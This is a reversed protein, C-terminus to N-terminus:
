RAAHRLRFLGYAIAALATLSAPVLLVDYAIASFGWAGAVGGALFGSIV